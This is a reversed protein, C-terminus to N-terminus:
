LKIFKLRDKSFDPSKCFYADSTMQLTNGGVDEISYTVQKLELIPQLNPCESAQAKSGAKMLTTSSEVVAFQFSKTDGLDGVAKLAISVSCGSAPDEKAVLMMGHKQLDIEVMEKAFAADMDAAQPGVNADEKLCAPDQLKYKGILEGRIEVGEVGGEFPDAVIGPRAPTENAPAAPAGDGAGEAADGAAAGDGVEAPAAPSDSKPTEAAPAEAPPTNKPRGYLDARPSSCAAGVLAFAVLAIVLPSKVSDSKFKKM